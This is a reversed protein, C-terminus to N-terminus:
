WVGRSHPRRNDNPWAPGDMASLFPYRISQVLLAILVLSKCQGAIMVHHFTLWNQPTLLVAFCLLCALAGRPTASQVPRDLLFFVLMAWPAYLHLLTYDHSLPPVLLSLVTLAIVQNITPLHRIKWFYLVCGATSVVALYPLVARPILALHHMSGLVMKLVGFLSHDISSEFPKWHYIYDDRFSAFGSQLGSYAAAVTPGLVALSVLISAAFVGAGLAVRRYDRRALFLGLFTLPYYKLSGAVGFCLVAATPRRKAYSGLGLATVVWVVVEINSLYFALLAPYSLLLASAAFACAVVPRLGRRMLGRAFLVAAAVYCFAGCQVFRLTPNSFFGYFLEYVLADPAPYNFGQQHHGAFFAAQHFYRFRDAFCNFDVNNYIPDLLDYFYPYRRRHLLNRALFTIAECLAVILAIAAWYLRLPGPLFRRVSQRQALKVPEVSKRM